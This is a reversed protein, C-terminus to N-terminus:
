ARGGPPVAPFGSITHRPFANDPPASGTEATSASSSTISHIPGPSCPDVNPPFGRAQLDTERVERLRQHERAITMRRVATQCDESPKHQVKRNLSSTRKGSQM